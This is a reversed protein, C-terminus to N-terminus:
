RLFPILGFAIIITGLLKYRNEKVFDRFSKRQEPSEPFQSEIAGTFIWNLALSSGMTLPLVINLPGAWEGYQAYYFCLFSLFVLIHM